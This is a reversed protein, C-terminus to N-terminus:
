IAIQSNWKSIRSHLDTVCLVDETVANVVFYSLQLTSSAFSTLKSNGKQFPSQYNQVPM